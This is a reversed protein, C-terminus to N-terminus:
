SHLAARAPGSATPQDILALQEAIRRRGGRTARRILVLGEGFRATHFNVLLGAGLGTVRLRSRVEARHVPLLADVARIDVAIQGAVCVDIRYAADLRVGRYFVPVSLHRQFAVGHLALEQCLAQEYTAEKQGPGLRRHVEACAEVVLRTLNERSRDESECPM